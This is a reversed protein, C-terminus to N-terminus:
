PPNPQDGLSTRIFLLIYHRRVTIVMVCYHCHASYPIGATWLRLAMVNRSLWPKFYTLLDITKNMM